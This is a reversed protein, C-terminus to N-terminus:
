LIPSHDLDCIIYGIGSVYYTNLLVGKIFFFCNIVKLPIKQGVGFRFGVTILMKGLSCHPGGGSLNHSEIQSSCSHEQDGVHDREFTGHRPAQGSLTSVQM